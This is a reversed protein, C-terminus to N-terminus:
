EGDGALLGHKLAYRVLDARDRLDLKRMLRTRYTEVSKHSLALMEATQSATYGLATYRLVELERGSLQEYPSRELDAQRHALYEEVVIRVGPPHLFAGGEAVARIAKVLESDVTSKIVYGAAGAQLVLLLYYDEAHVTLILVKTEPCLRKIQRTADLGNGPMSIDMVVIDPSLEKTLTVAEWGTAAEGIVQMDEESELFVRLGARVVPHDDALLIRIKNM